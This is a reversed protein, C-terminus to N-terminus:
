VRHGAILELRRFAHALDSPDVQRPYINLTYSAGPGAEERMISRLLAEPTVIEPGAEGILALTPATIVGGAALPEIHGLSFSQGGITAGGFITKGFAEWKPITIAPIKFHVRNWAGILLNMPAKIASVIKGISDRIGGIVGSIAAAIAKFKDSVWRWVETAAAIPKKIQEVITAIYGSITGVVGGIAAAIADWKGKVWEYVSTAAAKITDWNRAVILVAAGIPGTIIALLLPWNDQLWNFVAMAAGKITDWHEVILVAAVGIAAGIAVFPAAAGLTAIGAAIAGAAWATFLGALVIGIGILAAKNDLLMQLAPLLYTTLIVALQGVAPMVATGVTESFEGMAVQAARMQGATSEAAVAAQGEFTAAMNQMIQDATLAEGGAGKTAVGLKALGGTSGLAAKGMADTVTSLDKGTGAAVDTAVTLAAQAEETSGYSRALTALAPRLDDDAIATSKSLNAIYDEAAEVQKDTAGTTNKLAQALQAQSEADDTAATVAAKGFEVVKGVALGGGVAIAAKKGFSALKGGATGTATTVGSVLASTDAIFKAVITPGSAM